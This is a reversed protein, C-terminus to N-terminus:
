GKPYKDKVAQRKEQLATLQDDLIAHVCEQISPYEAQRNRAYVQADWDSILSVLKTDIQSETINNLNKGLDLVGNSISVKISPDLAIVADIIKPKM